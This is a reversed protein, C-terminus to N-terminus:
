DLGTVFTIFDKPTVLPGQAELTKELSEIREDLAAKDANSVFRSFQCAYKLTKVPYTSAFRDILKFAHKMIRAKINDMKQDFNSQGGFKFAIQSLLKLAEMPEAQLLQKTHYEVDELIKLAQKEDLFFLAEVAGALAELAHDSQIDRNTQLIIDISKQNLESGPSSNGVIGRAAEFSLRGAEEKSSRACWDLLTNLAGFTAHSENLDATSALLFIAANYRSYDIIENKMEDMIAQFGTSVARNFNNRM